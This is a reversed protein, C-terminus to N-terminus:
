AVDFGRVHVEPSSVDITVFTRSYGLSLPGLAIVCSGDIKRGVGCRDNNVFVEGHCETVVFDDGDYRVVIHDGGQPGIRAARSTSDVLVSKTGFFLAARHKDHLLQRALSERVDSAPPRGLPDPLISQDIMEVVPQPLEAVTAISPADVKEGLSRMKLWEPITGATLNWAISGFAFLDAAKSFYVKGQAYLEPASYGPTGVYGTTSNNVNDLRALGFDFLKLYGSADIKINRASIDRHIVNKAHVECIADSVQYLLGILTESDFPAGEALTELDEGDVFEEVIAIESGSSGVIVDFIEVVHKSRIQQLAAIEDLIRPAASPDAVEKVIVYRDLHTDKYKRARGMGGSFEQGTYVYRDPICIAM